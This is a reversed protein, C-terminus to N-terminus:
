PTLTIHASGCDGGSIFVEGPLACGIIPYPGLEGGSEGTFAACPIADEPAIEYQWNTAGKYITVTCTTIIDISTLDVTGRFGCQGDIVVRNLVCSGEGITTNMEANFTEPYSECCPDSLPLTTTSTTTTPTSTTTTSTPSCALKLQFRPSPIGPQNDDYPYDELRMQIAGGTHTFEVSALANGLECQAQSPYGTYGNGPGEIEVGGSHRIRFGYDVGANVYYPTAGGAGYRMAGNVYEVRYDNAPFSGFSVLAGTMVNPQVIGLSAENCTTTTTTTCTAAFINVLSPQGAIFVEVKVYLGQLLLLYLSDALLTFTHEGSFLGLTDSYDSNLIIEGEEVRLPLPYVPAVAQEPTIPSATSWATGTWTGASDYACVEIREIEHEGDLNLTLSLTNDIVENASWEDFVGVSDNEAECHQGVSEMEDDLIYQCTVEDSVCECTPGFCKARILVDANEVLVPATYITSEVTPETGDTTYRISGGVNPNLLVAYTPFLVHSGNPPDFVPVLVGICATTTGTTTSSTTNVCDTQLIYDFNM